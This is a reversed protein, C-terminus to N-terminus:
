KKAPAPAPKPKKLQQMAARDEFHM